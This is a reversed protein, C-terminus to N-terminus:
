HCVQRCTLTCTASRQARMSCIVTAGWTVCQAGEDTTGMDGTRAAIRELLEQEHAAHMTQRRSELTQLLDNISALSSARSLKSSRADEQERHRRLHRALFPFALGTRDVCAAPRLATRIGGCVTAWHSNCTFQHPACTQGRPGAWVAQGTM